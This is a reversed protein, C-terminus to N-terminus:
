RLAQWSCRARVWPGLRGATDRRPSNRARLLTHALQSTALLFNEVQMIACRGDLVRFYLAAGVKVSPHDRLNVNQSPVEQVATRLSVRVMQKACPALM